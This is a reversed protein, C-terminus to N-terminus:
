HLGCGTPQGSALDAITDIDLHIGPDNVEVEHYRDRHRQIVGRAGADGHLTTLAPWLDRGFVVPHGPRGAHHLRVIRERGAHRQLLRLTDAQLGPMDGLLVAAAAVEALESDDALATFADALSAGLGGCAHPARIVPTDAELGLARPDDEDRIVVRLTPFVAANAVATALLTRGEPLRARRKDEAGFRRSAGAALIVAVVRRAPSM